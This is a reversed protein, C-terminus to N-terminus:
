FVHRCEVNLELECRSGHGAGTPLFGTIRKFAGRTIQFYNFATVGFTPDTALETLVEFLLADVRADAVQQTGDRAPRLSQIVLTLSYVEELRMPLGCIVVNEYDGEAQDLWIADGSEGDM